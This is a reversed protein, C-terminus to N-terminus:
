EAGGGAHLLYLSRARGNRGDHPLQSGAEEEGHVLIRGELTTLDRVDLMNLPLREDSRLAGHAALTKQWDASRQMARLVNEFDRRVRWTKPGTSEAMGMSSLFMLREATRRETLSMAPGVGARSPDKTVRLFPRNQLVPLRPMASFSATLLPTAGKLSMGENRKPPISNRVFCLSARAIIRRPTVSARESTIGASVLRVNNRESVECHLTFV